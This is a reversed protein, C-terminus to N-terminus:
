QSDYEPYGLPSLIEIVKQVDWEFRVERKLHSNNADFIIEINEIGGQSLAKQITQACGNCKINTFFLSHQM